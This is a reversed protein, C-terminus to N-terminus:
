LRCRMGTDKRKGYISNISRPPRANLRGNVQGISVAKTGSWIVALGRYEDRKEKNKFLELTNEFNLTDVNYMGTDQRAM